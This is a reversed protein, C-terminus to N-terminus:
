EERQRLSSIVSEMTWHNTESFLCGFVHFFVFFLVFVILLCDWDLRVTTARSTDAAMTGSSGAALSASDARYVWSISTLELVVSSASIANPVAPAHNKPSPLHKQM